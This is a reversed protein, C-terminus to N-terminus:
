GVHPEPPSGRPLMLRSHQAVAPFRVSAAVHWRYAAVPARLPIVAGPCAPAPAESLLHDGVLLRRVDHTSEVAFVAEVGWTLAPFDSGGIDLGECLIFSLVLLSSIAFLLTGTRTWVCRHRPLRCAVVM